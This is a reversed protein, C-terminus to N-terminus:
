GQDIAGPLLTWGRQECYSQLHTRKELAAESGEETLPQAMRDIGCREGYLLLAQGDEFEVVAGANFVVDFVVAPVNDDIAERTVDVYVTKNYIKHHDLNTVFDDLTRCGIIM